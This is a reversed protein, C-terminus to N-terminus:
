SNPVLIEFNLFYDKLENTESLVLVNITYAFAKTGGPGPISVLPYWSDYWNQNYYITKYDYNKSTTLMIKAAINRNEEKFYLCDNLTAENFKKIDIIGPYSRDIESDYYSICNKSYLVRDKLVEAELRQTNLENVTFINILFVLVVAVIILLLLNFIMLVADESYIAKKNMKNMKM